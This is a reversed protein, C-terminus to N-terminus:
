EAVFHNFQEDLNYGIKQAREYCRKQVARLSDSMSLEQESLRSEKFNEAFQYFRVKKEIPLKRNVMEETKGKTEGVVRQYVEPKVDGYLVEEGEPFRDAVEILVEECLTALYGSVAYTEQAEQDMDLFLDYSFREEIKPTIEPNVAESRDIVMPEVNPVIDVRPAEPEMVEAQGEEATPAALADVETTAEQTSAPAETDKATEQAEVQLMLAGLAVISIASTTFWRKM